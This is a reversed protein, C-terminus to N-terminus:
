LIKSLGLVINALMALTLIRGSWRHIPRAKKGYKAMAPRTMLWGAFAQVVLWCGAVLGIVGHLTSFHSGEYSRVMLFAMAIGALALVGASGNMIKHAKLWWKKAKAFRAVLGGSTALAFATGMLAIHFPLLEM